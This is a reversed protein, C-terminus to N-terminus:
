KSILENKSHWPKGHAREFSKEDLSEIWDPQDQWYDYM